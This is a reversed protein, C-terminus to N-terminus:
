YSKFGIEQRQVIAQQGFYLTSITSYKNDHTVVLTPNIQNFLRMSREISIASSGDTINSGMAVLGGYVELGDRLTQTQDASSIIIKNEAIYFGEIFDYLIKSGTSLYDGDGIYINNKALFICGSFNNGSEINPEIYIDDNSIILAPQDCTYGSPISIDGDATYYCSFDGTCDASVSTTIQDFQTSNNKYKEFGEMLTDFWYNKTNNSDYMILTRVAGATPNILNSINVDRTALLETGLDIKEKTMQTKANFVGDLSTASSVDKSSSTINKTSYVFGGRTAFWPNLDMVENTMNTNCAKDYATTYINISGEENGAIYILDKEGAITTFVWANTGSYMGINTEPPLTGLSVSGKSTTYATPIYLTVNDTTVGGVRYANIVTRDVGSITDAVSWTIFTNTADRVEQTIDNVVPNVLDIGWDTLSTFYSQDLTTGNIMYSDLVGGYVNYMGSLNESSTLFEIKYDFTVSTGQTVSVDYIRAINSGNVTIYENTLQAFTFPSTNTAYIYPNSWTSGNKRIMIGLDQNSSGSYTGTITGTTPVTDDKSFWLTFAQIEDNSNTDTANIVVHLSNNIDSGTYTLSSCGKATQDTTIDPFIDDPTDITPIDPVIDVVYYGERAVSYQYTNNCKDTTAYKVSIQGKANEKLVQNVTKSTPVFSQTNNSNPMTTCFDEGTVGSCTTWTGWENGVGYNNVIYYYNAGRSTKPATFTPTTVQVNSSGAAPLKIHTPNNADSSLSYTTGDVIISVSSPGSTDLQDYHTFQLNTEPEYCSAGYLPCPGCGDSGGCTSLNTACLPGSVTTSQGDPCSPTCGTCEGPTCCSCSGWRSFGGNGCNYCASAQCHGSDCCEQVIGQENRCAECYIIERTCHSYTGSNTYVTVYEGTNCDCYTDSTQTCGTCDAANCEHSGLLLTFGFLVAVLMSISHIGKTLKM